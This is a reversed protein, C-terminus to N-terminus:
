VISFLLPFTCVCRWSSSCCESRRHLVQLITGIHCHAHEGSWHHIVSTAGLGVITPIVYAYVKLASATVMATTLASRKPGVTVGPGARLVVASGLSVVIVMDQVTVLAHLRIAHKEVGDRKVSARGRSVSAGARVTAHVSPLRATLVLTSRRVNVLAMTANGMAWVCRVRARATIARGVMGATVVSAPATAASAMITVIAKVCRGLAPRAVMAGM